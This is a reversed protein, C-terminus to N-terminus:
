RHGEDHKIGKRGSQVRRGDDRRRSEGEGEVEWGDCKTTSVIRTQYLYM